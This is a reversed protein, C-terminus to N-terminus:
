IMNRLYSNLSLGAQKAIRELLATTKTSYQVAKKDRYALEKPIYNEAIQRLIYKRIIECDRKVKMEAPINIAASIVDWQLYPTLLNVEARYSLKIDRVLNDKGLNKVDSFLVNELEEYGMFEYRKYGGFLEDAGQGFIAQSYGISKAFKMALYVPIGIAVQLPNTTEITKVVEPLVEKVEKEGFRFVEIERGLLKAALKVHEEEVKNATVSVLPIDYLAALLSSDVGGSFAICSTGPKFSELANEIIEVLEEVSAEERKFVDYFSYQHREEITGDYNLKLVEGPMLGIAETDFYSKFSSFTFEEPNYYLPKGGIVDRSLFIHRAKFAVIAHFGKIRLPADDSCIVEGADYLINGEQRSPYRASAHIRKAKGNEIEVFAYISM